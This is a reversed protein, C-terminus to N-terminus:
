RDDSIEAAAGRLGFCWYPGPEELSQFLRAEDDAPINRDLVSVGLSAEITQRRERGFQDPKRRRQQDRGRRDRCHRRLFRGCGDLDHEGDAGVRHLQAEDCAEVPRGAVRRSRVGEPHIYDRLTQFQQALDERLGAQDGKEDTRLRLRRRLLEALHFFGGLRDSLGDQNQM